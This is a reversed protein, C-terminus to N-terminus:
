DRSAGTAAAAIGLGLWTLSDLALAAVLGQATWVAATVLLIGAAALGTWAGTGIAARLGLWVGTALLGAFLLFGIAGLDALAQVWANQVGYRRGPEPFAEAPVDPFRKRADPLYESVLSYEGSAQWGAGLVPHDHWVRVGLYALLTRHSYTEVGEEQVQAGAEKIGAFRLFDDLDNGRLAVLLLGAVAIGAGAAALPRLSSRRALVVLGAAALAALVGLLGALSGSLVLGLAGSVCASAGLRKHKQFVLAALGIALACGSLAAFDHHGLFSPQRYGAPWADLVDLGAFQALAIATALAAWGAIAGLLLEVEGRRRALVPVALALIAYEAFKAATVAHQSFAYERDSAVPLLTSIAIWGLFAGAFLWIPLGPRLPRWGSRALRAAVAVGLVLLVLDSSLVDLDAAGTGLTFGPQYDVHFLVLPTAAALLAAGPSPIAM